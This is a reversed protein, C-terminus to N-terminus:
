GNRIYNLILIMNDLTNDVLGHSYSLPDDPLVFWTINENTETNWVAMSTGKGYYYHTHIAYKGYTLTICEHYWEKTRAMAIIM